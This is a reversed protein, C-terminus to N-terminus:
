FFTRLSRERRGMRLTHKSPDRRGDSGFASKRRKAEDNGRWRRSFPSGRLAGKADYVDHRVKWDEADVDVAESDSEDHAMADSVTRRQRRCAIPVDERLSISIEM